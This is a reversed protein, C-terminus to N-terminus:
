GNTRLAAFPLVKKRDILPPHTCKSGERMRQKVRERYGIHDDLGLLAARRVEANVRKLDITLEPERAVLHPLDVLLGWLLRVARSMFTQGRRRTSPYPARSARRVWEQEGEATVGAASVGM